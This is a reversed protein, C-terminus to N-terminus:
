IHAFLYHLYFRIPWPLQVNPQRMGYRVFAIWGTLPLYVHHTETFCLNTFFYTASLVSISQYKTYYYIYM